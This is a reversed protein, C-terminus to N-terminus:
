QKEKEDAAQLVEYLVQAAAENGLPTIIEYAAGPILWADEEASLDTVLVQMVRLKDARNLKHLEVLLQELSM